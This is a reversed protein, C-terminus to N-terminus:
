KDWIITNNRTIENNIKIISSLKDKTNEQKEIYNINEKFFNEIQTSSKIEFDFTIRTTTKGIYAIRNYEIIVKPKYYNEMLIVYIRKALEENYNLLISYNGKILEKADEKTIILSEKLQFIINM